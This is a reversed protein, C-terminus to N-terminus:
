PKELAVPVPPLPTTPAIIDAPDYGEIQGSEGDAGKCSLSLKMLEPWREVWGRDHDADQVFSYHVCNSEGMAQRFTHYVGAPVYTDGAGIFHHQPMASLSSAIDTALISDKDLTEKTNKYVMPPNLIGAVTRLSVVDSRSAALAAAINAGGDYGILNIETFEWKRKAEDIIDSYAALVEPSYRRNKYYAEKCVKENQSEMYQCPRAIHMLNKSKDRSALNLALPNRPSPDGGLWESHTKTYGDGEIYINVPAGREHMREWVQFNMNDASVKREVMFAPRAIREATVERVEADIPSCANLALACLGISYLIKRTM